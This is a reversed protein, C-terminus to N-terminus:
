IGYFDLKKFYHTMLWIISHRSFDLRVDAPKYNILVIEDDATFILVIHTTMM